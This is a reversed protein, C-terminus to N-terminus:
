LVLELFFIGKAFFFWFFFCDAFDLVPFVEFGENMWFQFSFHSFFLFDYINIKEMNTNPTKLKQSVPWSNKSLNAWGSNSIYAVIDLQIKIAKPCPVRAEPSFMNELSKEMWILFPHSAIAGIIKYVSDIMKKGTLHFNLGFPMSTPIARKNARAM